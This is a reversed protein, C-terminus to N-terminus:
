FRYSVGATLGGYWLMRNSNGQNAASKASASYLENYSDFALYFKGAMSLTLRDTLAYDLSVRPVLLFKAITANDNYIAGPTFQKNAFYVLTGVGLGVTTDIDSLFPFTYNLSTYIPLYGEKINASQSKGAIVQALNDGGLYHYAATLEWQFANWQYGFSFAAGGGVQIKNLGRTFEKPIFTVEAEPKIFLGKEAHAMSPAMASVALPVAVLLPLSRHLIARRLLPRRTAHTHYPQM